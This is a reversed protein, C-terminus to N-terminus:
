YRVALEGRAPCNINGSEIRVAPPTVASGGDVQALASVNLAKLARITERHLALLRAPKKM